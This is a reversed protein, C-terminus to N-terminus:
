SKELADRYLRLHDLLQRPILYSRRVTRQAERGIKRRLAPDNLLSIIRKAAVKPTKAIFGDVGDTIQSRIGAAPGGIVAAGKWMAETVTLGFGERTSLQLIADAATQVANVFEDNTRGKLQDLRSFLFINKDGRAASRVDRFIRVAEPDDQARRIGVLALQLGPIVRAARRYAEVAGLPNKWPDFRSIQAMLPRKPDIGVDEIVKNARAASFARNKGNLPDIAPPIVAIQDKRLGRPAFSRLSFVTKEYASLYPALFRLIRRDPRSLDIHMRSIMPSRGRRQGRRHRPQHYADIVALPQPDHIVALDFSIGSLEKAIKRNVDLFYGLDHIKLGFRKGQLGNHIEKTIEFFRKPAQMAYWTARLGAANQLPVLARLMEAVGGGVPTANVHVV